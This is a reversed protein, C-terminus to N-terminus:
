NIIVMQNEFDVWIEIVKGMRHFFSYHYQNEHEITLIFHTDLNSTKSHKRKITKKILKEPNLPITIHERITNVTLKGIKEDMFFGIIQFDELEMLPYSTMERWPYSSISNLIPYKSQKFEKEM